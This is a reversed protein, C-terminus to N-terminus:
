RTSVDQVIRGDRLQLRRDCREALTPDHTALVVTAGHTDPLALLLKAVEDATESDLNGTPEDALVLKPNNVLARAIAVRQQQGGSLRTALTNERGALGVALLLGEARDVEAKGVGSPILPVLVNDLVTLTALLNFNQFVFGVGRRYAAAQKPALTAIEVGDVTISGSDPAELLGLLHLLTSKGSGSPGTLAVSSGRALSFSVCDAAVVTRDLTEFSRCVDVAEIFSRDISEEIM